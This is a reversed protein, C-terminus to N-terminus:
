LADLDEVLADLVESPTGYELHAVLDFEGIGAAVAADRAQAMALTLSDTGRLERAISILTRAHGISQLHMAHVAAHEASKTPGELAHLASELHDLIDGQSAQRLRDGAGDDKDFYHSAGAEMSLDWALNTAFESTDYDAELAVRATKIASLATQIKINM